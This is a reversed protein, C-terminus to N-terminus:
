IAGHVGLIGTAGWTVGGVWARISACVASVCEGRSGIDSSYSFFPTSFPGIGDDAYSVAHVDCAPIGPSGNM